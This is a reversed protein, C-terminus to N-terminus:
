VRSRLEKMLNLYVYLEYFFWSNLVSIQAIEIIKTQSSQTLTQLVQILTVHFNYELYRREFYM